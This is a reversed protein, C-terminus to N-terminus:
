SEYTCYFALEFYLCVSVFKPNQLLNRCQGIKYIDKTFSNTRCTKHHMLFNDFCMYKLYICYMLQAVPNGCVCNWSKEM